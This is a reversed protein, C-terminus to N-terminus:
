SRVAARKKLVVWMVAAGAAAGAAFALWLIPAELPTIHAFMRGHSRGPPRAALALGLRRPRPEPLSV